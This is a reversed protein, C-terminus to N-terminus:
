GLLAPFRSKLWGRVTLLIAQKTPMTTEQNDLAEKLFPSDIGYKLLMGAIMEIDPVSRSNAEVKEYAKGRLFAIALCTSRAETRVVNTRHKRLQEATNVFGDALPFNERLRARKAAKRQAREHRRIIRSEEALSSAKIALKVRGSNM